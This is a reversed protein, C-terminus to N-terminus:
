DGKYHDILYRIADSVTAKLRDTSLKTAIDKLKSHQGHSIKVTIPVTPRDGGDDAKRNAM